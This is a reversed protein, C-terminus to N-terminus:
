SLSSARWVRGNRIHSVLSTSVGFLSAVVANTGVSAKIMRVQESTLRKGGGNTEGRAHRRKRVSDAKNSAPDGAWLHRPNCCPPNDCAHCVCEPLPGYALWYAVRHARLMCGRAKFQGYRTRSVLSGTWPWCANEGGSRDIKSHFREVDAQSLELRLRM